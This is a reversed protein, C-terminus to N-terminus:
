VRESAMPKHRTPLPNSQAEQLFAKRRIQLRQDAAEYEKKLDLYRRSEYILHDEGYRVGFVDGSRGGIRFKRNLLSAKVQIYKGMVLYLLRNLVRAFSTPNPKPSTAPRGMLVERYAAPYYDSIWSASRLLSEYRGRGKLVKAELADRAFLPDRSEEFASRACEEDMVCSICVRSDHRNLLGYARALVLSKTLCVWMSQHPAVCFLDTDKSVSASGYSTSGSVAVVQFGSGHLFSVFRSAQVLNALALRRSDAELIVPNLAPGRLRETLFGSRLEFKSNLFPVSAIADRVESESTIEPLLRTLEQVTVLSGNRKAATYVLAIREASETSLTV